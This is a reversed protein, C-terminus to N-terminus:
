NRYMKQTLLMENAYKPLKAMIIGASVNNITASYGYTEVDKAENIEGNVKRFDNFDVGYRRRLKALEYHNKDKFTCM